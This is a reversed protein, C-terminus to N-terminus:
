VGVFLESLLTLVTAFTLFIVFPNLRPLLISSLGPVSQCICRSLRALQDQIFNSSSFSFVHAFAKGKDNMAKVILHSSLTLLVGPTM